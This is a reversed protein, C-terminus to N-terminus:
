VFGKRAKNYLTSNDSPKSFISNLYGRNIAYGYGLQHLIKQCFSRVVQLIKLKLQFFWCSFIKDDCEDVDFDLPQSSFIEFKEM